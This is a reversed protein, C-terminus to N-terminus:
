RFNVVTRLYRTIQQGLPLEEVRIKAKGRYGTLMPADIDTLPVSVEYSTLLPAERGDPLPKVSVNGGNTISLERPLTTLADQSVSSVSAEFRRGPIEDLLLQVTQGNEILKVDSQDVVMTAKMKAPDGVVCFLTQTEFFAMRNEEDLPTGSWSALVEGGAGGPTAALNPPPIVSGDRSASLVLQTQKKSHATLLREIDAISTRSQAIQRSAAPLTQRAMRLSALNAKEFALKGLLREKELTLEDNELIAITEGAKVADGPQKKLELLSGPQLVYVQDADIPQVVFNATVHRPVPIAFLGWIILGAVILTPILRKSKVERLRGPYWFFKVLKFMPIVVMGVLSMAILGHGIVSLGWPEFFKALFWFILIMVFWRYIFAAVAYTAFSIRNRKPLTRAQLPKMGLCAVRLGNILSTKSKQALNPIELYDSLMYYGDYRLLPNANFIITTVSCLFVTNLALYHLWGPQTYWWIFTAAAAMVIEVYMGGAGIAIRHWKNPLTWSDSTNCYMAPTLVLFMFGIEHCEGGFHKCMLGHGLEHVSKTVMTIAAMFLLNRLNFFQGFEPLRRYFEAANLAVLMTAAIMLLVCATTFWRSFMFRTKPYLWTLFREPDVGPLRLSMVSMLLQTAKQKIEKNRRKILPAAQGPQDAILLGNKHLSNALYHVTEVNINLEPFESELADRIEAASTNGDFMQTAFYEPERLQFYKLAVPDKVVWSREGQFHSESMEIDPRLRLRIPRRDSSTTSANRITSM